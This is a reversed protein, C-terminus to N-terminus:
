GPFELDLSVLASFQRSAISQPLSAVARRIALSMTLLPVTTRRDSLIKRYLFHRREFDVQSFCPRWKSNSERVPVRSVRSSKCTFLDTAKKRDNKGTTVMPNQVVPM